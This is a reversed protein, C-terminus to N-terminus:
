LYRRRHKKRFDLRLLILLMNMKLMRIKNM